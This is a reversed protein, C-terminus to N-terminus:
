AANEPTPAEPPPPEAALPETPFAPPDAARVEDVAEPSVATQVDPAPADEFGLGHAIMYVETTFDARIHTATVEIREATALVIRRVAAALSELDAPVAAVLAYLEALVSSQLENM